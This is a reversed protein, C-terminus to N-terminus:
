KSIGGHWSCAGQKGGAHSLTGDSCVTAYGSGASGGGTDGSGTYVSSSGSDPSSLGAAELRRTYEPVQSAMFDVMADLDSDSLRYDDPYCSGAFVLWGSRALSQRKTEAISTVDGITFYGPGRNRMDACIRAALRDWSAQDISLGAARYDSRVREFMMEDMVDLSTKKASPAPASSPIVAKITSKTAHLPEVSPPSTATGYDNAEGRPSSCGSVLLVVMLVVALRDRMM